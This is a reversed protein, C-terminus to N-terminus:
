VLVENQLARMLYAGTKSEAPPTTTEQGPTPQDKPPIHFRRHENPQDRRRNAPAGPDRSGSRGGAFDDPLRLGAAFDKEIDDLDIVPHNGRQERLRLLSKGGPELLRGLRRFQLDRDAIRYRDQDPFAGCAPQEDIPELVPTSGSAGSDRGGSLPAGPSVSVGPSEPRGRLSVAPGARLRWGLM